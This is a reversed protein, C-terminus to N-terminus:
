MEGFSHWVAGLGRRNGNGVVGALSQGKLRCLLDFPVPMTYPPCDPQTQVPRALEIRM